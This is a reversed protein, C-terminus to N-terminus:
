SNRHPRALVSATRAQASAPAPAGAISSSAYTVAFASGGASLMSPSATAAAGSNAIFHRGSAALTIKTRTWRRDAITGKYGGSTVVNARSFRASGFNALALEQCASNGSCESPAEVIWDASSVDLLTVPVTRHFSTRRTVDDIELRVNHGTVTVAATLYDGPTVTLAVNRSPAPVLEYWASSVVHGSASCDVESGIQELAQSTESYGGLGVWVSSYTPVGATCSPAPQRWAGFVRRYSVHSGHVAYGAWNSSQTSDALAAPALLLVLALTGLVARSRRGALTRSRPMSM